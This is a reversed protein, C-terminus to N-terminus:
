VADSINLVFSDVFSLPAITAPWRSDDFVLPQWYQADESKPHDPGPASTWLDGVYVYGTEGADTPVQIVFSQQARIRRDGDAKVKPNLDAGDAPTSWPGLPHLAYMVVTGSGQHCFCCCEGFTLYYVGNRAFMIPAENNSPSIFGSSANFGLSDTFDPTLQEVVVKHETSWSDYAVYGVGGVDAFLTLDGAGSHAVSAATTVVNFVGHPYPSTAVLYLAKTYAALPITDPPLYNAWLVYQGTRQNLLVKPRYYIGAPRAHAPLVENSFTWRVLDPSTYLNIAHDTRFGCEGFSEYIGPCDVPPILGKRESCNTYGMGYWYFLPSGPFQVIVGDHVDMVRGTVDVRVRGDNVITVERARLATLFAAALLLQAARRHM